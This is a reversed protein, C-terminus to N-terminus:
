NCHTTSINGMHSTTCNVTQQQAGQLGDGFGKLAAAVARLVKHGTSEPQIVCTARCEAMHEEAVTRLCERVCAGDFAVPPPPDPVAAKVVEQSAVFANVTEPDSHTATMDACGTLAVLFALITLKKVKMKALVIRHDREKTMFDAVEQNFRM